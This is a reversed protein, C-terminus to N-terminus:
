IRVSKARRYNAGLYAPSEPLMSLSLPLPLSLSLSLTCDYLICPAAVVHNCLSDLMHASSRGCIVM